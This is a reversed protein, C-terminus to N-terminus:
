GCGKWRADKKVVGWFWVFKRINDNIDGWSKLENNLDDM